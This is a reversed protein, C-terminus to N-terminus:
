STHSKGYANEHLFKRGRAKVPTYIGERITGFTEIGTILVYTLTIQNQFLHQYYITCAHSDLMQQIINIQEQLNSTAHTKIDNWNVRIINKRQTLDCLYAKLLVPYQQYHAIVKKRASVTNDNYRDRAQLAEYLAQKLADQRCLSAGIGSPQHPVPQRTFSVFFAPIEFDTTMDVLFLEDQYTEEIAYIDDRIAAPLTLKDILRIPHKEIILSLIFLGYADREVWELIGHLLAETATAGIALGTTNAHSCIAKIKSDHAYCDIRSLHPAMLVLPYHISKNRLNLNDLQLWPIVHNAYDASKFVAPLLHQNLLDEYDAAHIASQLIVHECQRSNALFEHFLADELAEFLAKIESEVENGCGAGRFALHQHECQLLCVSTPLEAVKGAQEIRYSYAHDHFYRQILKLAHDHTYLRRTPMM